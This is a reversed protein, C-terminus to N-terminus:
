HQRSNAPRPATTSLARPPSASREPRPRGDPSRPFTPADDPLAATHTLLMAVTIKAEPLPVDPLIAAVPGDLDVKGEGALRYLCLAVLSKSISGIQFLQNSRVPLGRELDAYGITIAAELGDPGVVAM